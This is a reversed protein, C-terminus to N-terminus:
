RNRMGYFRAWDRNRFGGGLLLRVSNNFANSVIYQFYAKNGHNGDGSDFGAALTTGGAAILPLVAIDAVRYSAGTITIGGTRITDNLTLRDANQATESRQALTFLLFKTVGYGAITSLHAGYNTAVTAPAVNLPYIDNIGEWAIVAPTRGLAQERQVIGQIDTVYDDTTTIVEGSVSVNIFRVGPLSPQAFWALDFAAGAAVGRGSSTGVIIATKYKDGYGYTAKGYAHIDAWQADTLAEHIILIENFDGDFYNAGAASAGVYGGAVASSGISAGTASELDRWVKTSSPGAIWGFTSTSSCGDIAFNVGSLYMRGDTNFGAQINTNGIVARYVRTLGRVRGFMVITIGDAPLVSSAALALRRNNNLNEWAIAPPRDTENVYEPRTADAATTAHNANGTLDSVQRVLDATAATPTTGLDTYSTTAKLRTSVARLWTCRDRLDGFDVTTITGTDTASFDAATGDIGNLLGNTTYERWVGSPMMRAILATSRALSSAAWQAETRLEHIAAVQGATPDLAWVSMDEVQCDMKRDATSQRDFMELAGSLTDLTLSSSSLASGAVETRNVWATAASGDTAFSAKMVVCLEVWRGVPFTNGSSSWRNFSTSTGGIIPQINCYGAAPTNFTFARGLTFSNTAGKFNCLYGVSSPMSRVLLRCALMLPLSTYKAVTLGSYNRRSPTVVNLPGAM